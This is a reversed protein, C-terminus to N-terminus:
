LPAYMKEVEALRTRSYGAEDLYDRMFAMCRSAIPCPKSLDERPYRTAFLPWGTCAHKFDCSTCRTNQEVVEEELSERYRPSAIIEEYTQELLNGLKKSETYAHQVLYLDGNTNVVFVRDGGVRRDYRPIRLGAINRLAVEFYETLPVVPVRLDVIWHRFLVELAQVLEDSSLAFRESPREDPGEFLPLIRMSMGQSAFFEYVRAVERATHRALVAIGGPNFGAERVRAINRIVDRETERGNVSLRVGPVVDCSVSIVFDMDHILAIQEDTIRYLNSQINNPFHDRNFSRNGFVKHQLARVEKMYDVPLLLPEGGHWVISSRTPRGCRRAELDNHSRIAVLIREWLEMSMRRPDGLENWEYCYACRLNCLKSTKIVWTLSRPQM